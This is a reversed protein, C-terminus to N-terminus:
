DRSKYMQLYDLPKFGLRSYLEIARKNDAEIELRFRKACPEDAIIHEILKKGIGRSRFGDKIYLEEIFVSLGGAEQSFTRATLGYGLIEGNEEVIYCKAFESGKMIEDFTSEFHKLPVPYLVADSKYFADSMEIYMDKDAAHLPRIIM